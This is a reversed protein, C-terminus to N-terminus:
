VNLHNRTLPNVPGIPSPNEEAHLKALHLYHRASNDISLVEYGTLDRVNQAPNGVWLQNSKVRSGSKLVSGAGLMSMAEMYSNDELVSGMGILCRDEITCAHLVCNHGITVRHGIMTSGDHDLGLANPSEVIITGDQINSRAGIRIANSHAKIVCNYWISTENHIEVQGVITASPLIYAGLGIVPHYDNNISRLGLLTRQKSFTALKRSTEEFPELIGRTEGKAAYHSLVEIEEKSLKATKEDITSQYGEKSPITNPDETYNLEDSAIYKTKPIDYLVPDGEERYIPTTPKVVKTPKGSSGYRQFTSHFSSSGHPKFLVLSANNLASYTNKLM